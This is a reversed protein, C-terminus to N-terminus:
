REVKKRWATRGRILGILTAIVWIHFVIDVLSSPINELSMYLLVASDVVFLVLAIYLSTLRKKSLFYLWLFVSALLVALAILVVEMAGVGNEEMSLAAAVTLISPVFASFPFIISSKILLLIINVYTFVIMTLFSGNARKVKNRLAAFESKLGLIESEDLDLIESASSNDNLFVGDVALDIGKGVFPIKLLLENGGIEFSVVWGIKKIVSPEFERAVGDINLKVNGFFKMSKYAITHEMSDDDLIIWQMQSQQMNIDTIEQIKEEGVINKYAIFVVANSFPSVFFIVFAYGCAFTLIALAEGEYATTLFSNAVRFITSTVIELVLLNLFNGKILEMSRVLFGKTKSELSIIPYVFFIPINVIAMFLSLYVSSFPMNRMAITPIILVLCLSLFFKAFAWYKGKSDKYAEIFSTEQGTYLRSIYLPKALTFKPLFVVAIVPILVLFFGAQTTQPYIAGYYRNLAFLLDYILSFAAFVALKRFHATYFSWAEHLIDSTNLKLDLQHSYEQEIDLM